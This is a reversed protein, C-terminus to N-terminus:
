QPVQSEDLVSTAAGAVPERDGLYTSDNQFDSPAPPVEALPDLYSPESVADRSRNVAWFGAALVILALLLIVSARM